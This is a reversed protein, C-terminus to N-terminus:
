GALCCDVPCFDHNPSRTGIAKRDPQDSLREEILERIMQVYAPHVGVTAGRVWNLQLEAALDHAEADLDYLVEVHDSLFGVPLAVVESVDQNKLIRLHESIDPGLWPQQPSGSRSQYVLDWTTIGAREAVLRSTEKLQVEYDSGRAMSLPISHATFVVRADDRRDPPIQNLAANLHDANAAIFGPHNYFVRLKDIEPAGEGAEAQARSIDERYQRCGSYSSYASTVFALAWRVGDAKMQRLTDTLYPTWNRNGWYIPLKIGHTSLEPGLAAILDRNQQNIPSVGGFREYHHAVELLRERPVRRGRVVNELFPLVDTMGEPGGFSVILLADYQRAGQQYHEPSSTLTLIDFAGYASQGM